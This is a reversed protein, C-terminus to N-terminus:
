ESAQAVEFYQSLSSWKAASAFANLAEQTAFVFKFGAAHTQAYFADSNALTPVTTGDFATMDVTALANCGSFARNGISTVSNPISLTTLAICGDFARNSISTVSNGLTLTTLAYCDQFAYDGISTVSNGITLSTLANCGSFAGNSISTVSDPITLTTLANCGYFANDGISTVSDPISLTTLAYCNYFAYEGISTVSNPFVIETIPAGSWMSLFKSINEAIISNSIKVGILVPNINSLDLVGNEVSANAQVYANFQARTFGSGIYEVTSPLEDFPFNEHRPLADDGIYTLNPPFSTLQVKPCDKFANDEIVVLSDPLETIELNEDGQFAGKDIHTVKPMNVTVLANNNYILDDGEGEGDSGSGSGSAGATAAASSFAYKGIYVAEPINVTQLNSKASFGYDPIGELNCTVEQMNGAIFEDLNAGTEITAIDDAFEEFGDRGDVIGGKATIAEAINSKATRLRQIKDSISM